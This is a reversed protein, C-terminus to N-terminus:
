LSRSRTSLDAAASGLFGIVPLALQQARTALPSAIAAGLRAIFECRRMLDEGGSSRYGIAPKTAHSRGIDLIGTIAMGGLDRSFWRSVVGEARRKGGTTAWPQLAPREGARGSVPPLGALGCVGEDIGIRRVVPRPALRAPRCIM